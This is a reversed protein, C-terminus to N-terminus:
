TREESWCEQRNFWAALNKRYGAGSPTLHVWRQHRLPCRCRASFYNAGKEIRWGRSEAQRLVAELEKDPHRPRMASVTHLPHSLM